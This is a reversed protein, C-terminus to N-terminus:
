LGIAVDLLSCARPRRVISESMNEVDIMVRRAGRVGLLQGGEFVDGAAITRVLEPQLAKASEKQCRTVDDYFTLLSRQWPDVLIWEPLGRPRRWVVGFRALASGPQAAFIVADLEERRSGFGDGSWNMRGESELPLKSATEILFGVINASVGAGSEVLPCFLILVWESIMSRQLLCLHFTYQFM